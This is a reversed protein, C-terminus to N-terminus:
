SLSLFFDCQELAVDQHYLITGPFQKQCIKRIFISFVNPLDIVVSWMGVITNIEELLSVVHLVVVAIPSGIQNLKYHDRKGVVMWKNKTPVLSNILIPFSPSWLM